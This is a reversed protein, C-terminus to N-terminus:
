DIIIIIRVCVLRTKINWLQLAGQSSGLLVKNLYTSPHMMASLDFTAPDFHLQLYIDAFLAFCSPYCSTGSGGFQDCINIRGHLLSILM